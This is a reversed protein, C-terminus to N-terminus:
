GGHDKGLWRSPLGLTGPSPETIASSLPCPRLTSIGPVAAPEHM